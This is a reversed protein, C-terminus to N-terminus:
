NMSIEFFLLCDLGISLKSDAYIFHTKWSILEFMLEPIYEDVEIIELM